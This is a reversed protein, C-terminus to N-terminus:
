AAVIAAQMSPFLDEGLCDAPVIKSFLFGHLILTLLHRVQHMLVWLVASRFHVTYRRLTRYLSSYLIQLCVYAVDIDVVTEKNNNKAFM